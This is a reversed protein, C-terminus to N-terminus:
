RCPSLPALSPTPVPGLSEEHGAPSALRAPERTAGARRMGTAGPGDRVGPEPNEGAPREQPTGAAHAAAGFPPGHRPSAVGAPRDAAGADQRTRAEQLTISVDAAPPATSAAGRSGTAPSSRFSAAWRVEHRAPQSRSGAAGATGRRREPRWSLAIAAAATAAGSTRRSHPQLPM